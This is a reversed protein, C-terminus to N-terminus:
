VLGSFLDQLPLSFEPIIGEATLTDTENFIVPEVGPRHATIRPRKPDVDWVLRAGAALYRKIKEAIRGARDNPSRVEGVLAPVTLLYGEKTEQEPEQDKTLFAFDAGFASQTPTLAIVVGIDGVRSSGYGKAEGQIALQAILRAIV